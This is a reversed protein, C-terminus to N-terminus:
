GDMVPLLLHKYGEESLAKSISKIYSDKRKQPYARPVPVYIVNMSEKRLQYVASTGDNLNFQM